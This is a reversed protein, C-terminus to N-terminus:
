SRRSTPANSRKRDFRRLNAQIFEKEMEWLHFLDQRPVANQITSLFNQGAINSKWFDLRLFVDFTNELLRTMDAHEYRSRITEPNESLDYAAAITNPGLYMKVEFLDELAGLSSHWTLGQVYLFVAILKGHVPTVLLDPQNLLNSFYPNKQFSGAPLQDILRQLINDKRKRQKEEVV